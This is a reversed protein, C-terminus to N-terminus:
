QGISVPFESSPDLFFARRKATWVPSGDLFFRPSNQKQAYQVIELAYLIDRLKVQNRPIRYFSLHPLVYRQVNPITKNKHTLIDCIALALISRLTARRKVM